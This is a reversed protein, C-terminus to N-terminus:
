VVYIDFIAKLSNKMKDKYYNTANGGDDLMYFYGALVKYLSDKRM